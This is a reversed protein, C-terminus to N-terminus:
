FVLNGLLKHDINAKYPLMKLSSTELQKFKIEHENRERKGFFMTGKSTDVLEPISASVSAFLSVSVNGNNKSNASM